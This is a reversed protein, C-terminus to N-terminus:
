CFEYGCCIILICLDFETIRNQFYLALLMFNRVLDQSGLIQCGENLINNRNLVIWHWPLYNSHLSWICQYPKQFTTSVAHLEFHSTAKGAKVWFIGPTKTLYKALDIILYPSYMSVVKQRNVFWIQTYGKLRSSHISFAEKIWARATCKLICSNQKWNRKLFFSEGQETLMCLSRTWSFFWPWNVRYFSSYM